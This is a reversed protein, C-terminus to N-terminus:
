GDMRTRQGLPHWAGHGAAPTTFPSLQQDQAPTTNRRVPVLHLMRAVSSPGGSWHRESVWPPWLFWRWTKRCLARFGSAAYRGEIEQITIPIILWDVRRLVWNM